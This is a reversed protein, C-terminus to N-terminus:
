ESWTTTRPWVRHRAVVPVPLEGSDHRKGRTESCSSWPLELMQREDDPPSRGAAGARRRGTQDNLESCDALSV